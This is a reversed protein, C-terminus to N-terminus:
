FNYNEINNSKSKILNLDELDETLLLYDILYNKNNLKNWKKYLPNNSFISVDDAEQDIMRLLDHPGVEREVVVKQSSLPSGEINKGKEDINGGEIVAAESIEQANEGIEAASIGEVKESMGMDEGVKERVRMLQDETVQRTVDKGVVEEEGIVEISVADIQNSKIGRLSVREGGCEEEEHELEPFDIKEEVASASSAITNAQSFVSFIM